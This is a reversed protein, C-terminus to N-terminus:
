SNYMTAHLQEPMISINYLHEFLYMDTCSNRLVLLSKLDDFFFWVQIQNSNM